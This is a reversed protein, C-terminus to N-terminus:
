SYFDNDRWTQAYLIVKKDNDIKLTKKM